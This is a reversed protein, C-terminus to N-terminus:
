VSELWDGHGCVSPIKDFPGGIYLSQLHQNNIPATNIVVSDAISIKSATDAVQALTPPFRLLALSTVFILRRMRGASFDIRYGEAMELLGVGNERCLFRLLTCGDVPKPLSYPLRGGEAM